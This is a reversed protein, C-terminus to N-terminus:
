PADPADGERHPAVRALSRAPTPRQILAGVEKAERKAGLASFLALAHRLQKLGGARDCMLGRLVGLTRASEAELARHKMQRVGEFNPAQDWYLDVVAVRVPERDCTRVLSAWDHCEHVDHRDRIASRLRQVHVLQPLLAAIVGM